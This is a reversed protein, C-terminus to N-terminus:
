YLWQVRGGLDVLHFPGNEEMKRSFQGISESAPDQLSVAEKAMSSWVDHSPSEHTEMAEPLPIFRPTRAPSESPIVPFFRGVRCTGRAAAPRAQLVAVEVAGFSLRNQPYWTAVAM